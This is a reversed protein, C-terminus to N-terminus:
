ATFSLIASVTQAIQEEETISPTGDGKQVGYSGFFAHCGGDIIVETTTKPLNLFYDAYKKANLVTDNSGYISLVKLDASNLDATSYSALLVLGDYLDTHDAVYSAAMSGGLSHGGIYWNSINPFQEQIGDAADMDLVALNGPMEILVCLIGNEALTRMLPAYATYEVKGGPYFILGAQPQTPSFVLQRNEPESVSVASTSQMAVSAPEAARYYDNIYLFCAIALVFVAIAASLCCRKIRKTM